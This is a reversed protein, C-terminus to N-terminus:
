ESHLVYNGGNWLRVVSAWAYYSYSPLSKKIVALLPNHSSCNHVYEFRLTQHPKYVVYEPQVEPRSALEQELKAIYPSNSHYKKVGELTDILNDRTMLKIKSPIFPHVNNKLWEATLGLTEAAFYTNGIGEGTLLGKKHVFLKIKEAYNTKQANLYNLENDVLKSYNASGTHSQLENITKVLSKASHLYEIREDPSVELYVPRFCSTLVLNNPSNFLQSSVTRRFFYQRIFNM